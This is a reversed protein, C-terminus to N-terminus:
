CHMFRSESCLFTGARTPTNSAVEWFNPPPIYGHTGWWMSSRTFATNSGIETALGFDSVVIRRGDLLFNAPKIDRHFKNRSHLEQVCDIMQLFCDEQIEYSSQLTTSLCGIDGDPYYKMVFYPPDHELNHAIIQVVRSNGEFSALVRVERRFRALQEEANDRCYKLVVRHPLSTHLPLVFLIVGMGGSESCVGEVKYRNDIVSGTVFM